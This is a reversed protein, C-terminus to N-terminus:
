FAARKVQRGVGVGGPPAQLYQLSDAQPQVRAGAAQAPLDPNLPNDAQAPEPSPQGPLLVAAELGAYQPFLTLRRRHAPGASHM